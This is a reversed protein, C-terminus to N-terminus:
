SITVAPTALDIAVQVPKGSRRFRITITKGDSTEEVDRLDAFQGSKAIGLVTVIYTKAQKQRTEATLHWEPEPKGLEPPLTYQDTQALELGGPALLYGTLSANEFTLTVHGTSQDITFPARGHLWAKLSVPAKGQVEDLVVVVDPKLFLLHRRYREVDGEYASSADGVVYDYSDHPQFAIVQGKAEATKPQGKGNIELANHAKTTIYWQWFYPSGWWPRIGTNVLLPSGYAGVVFANQDAHSHSINGLPSARMMVQVDKQGDLLDTHLCVWGVGRFWKAKPWDAPPTARLPSRGARVARMFGTPTTFLDNEGVAESYWQWVPNGRLRAFYSDIAGSYRMALDWYGLKHPRRPPDEGYDAFGSLPGGPPAVYIPFDGVHRYFPKESGDIELAAKLADIWWTSRNVYGIWYSFGQAWGGDADGFAPYWGWFITLAYDLWKKAEPVEGYYAIAAEGLFHWLRGQHSDYAKQEHPAGHLKRYAEEGRIRIMARMKERDPESLADYAWDYARSTSYLIPMGCEDNVKLSTTGAPNWAAIHLLWKRAGEGYRPDGSIRYCFALTAAIGTAEIASRYNRRWEDAYKEPTTYAPPEPILPVKLYTEALEILEDWRQKQAVLSAKRFEAVEEPRMLLRPHRTPLRQRILEEGPRPFPQADPPITFKRITSWGSQSGKGDVCAYRWWWTGPTLTATHTYLVYPTHPITILDRTFGADRALQVSYSEAGPEPLWALAPPNTAVPAADDPLYGIEELQPARNSVQPLGREVPTQTDGDHIAAYASSEIQSLAGSAALVAGKSIEHFFKRRKM